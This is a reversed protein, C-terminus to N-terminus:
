DFDFSGLDTEGKEADDDGNEVKKNEGSEEASQANAPNVQLDESELACTGNQANRRKASENEADAADDDDDDDDNIRLACSHASDDQANSVPAKAPSEPENENIRWACPLLQIKNKEGKARTLTYTAGEVGRKGDSWLYGNSALTKLCAQVTRTPPLVEIEESALAKDLAKDVDSRRFGHTKKNAPVHSVVADLVVEESPTLSKWAQTFSVEVLSLATEFDEETAVVRGEKDTERTNQHLWAVVKVVNFLQPVDRRLRVPKSPVEVREAYPVVVDRPELLRLAHHWRQRIGKQEDESVGEKGAARRKAAETIRRTQTPSEDLYLPLVRTENEPHLHNRTTTQVVVCPGEKEHVVTTLTGDPMKETSEWVLRGDSQLIRISFEAGESGDREQIYLVAGKLSMNTRFLAKATVGSRKHLKEPPLLSTVTDWLKNKGAASQAHTSPQLPTGAMASVACVFALGKNGDEGILGMSTADERVLKLIDPAKLLSEAEKRREEPIEEIANEGAEAAEQEEAAKAEAIRQADGADSYIVGIGREIVAADGFTDPYLRSATQAFRGRATSKALNIEENHFVGPHEADYVFLEGHTYSKTPTYVFTLGELEKDVLPESM